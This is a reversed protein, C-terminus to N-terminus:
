RLLVPVWNQSHLLTKQINIKFYVMEKWSLSWQLSAMCPVPWFYQGSCPLRPVWGSLKGDLHDNPKTSHSLGHLLGLSAYYYTYIEQGVSTCHVVCMYTMEWRKFDEGGAWLGAWGLGWEEARSQKLVGQFLQRFKSDGTLLLDTREDFYTSVSYM